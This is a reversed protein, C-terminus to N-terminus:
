TDSPTLVPITTAAEVIRHEARETEDADNIEALTAAGVIACCRAREADFEGDGPLGLHHRGNRARVQAEPRGVAGRNVRKV